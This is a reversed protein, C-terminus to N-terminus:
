EWRLATMPDIRAARRAPVLSAAATTVLIAASVLALTLPDMPMVGYLADALLRSVGWAAALGVAIGCAAFVAGQGIVQRLVLRRTAGLAMRVGIERTRRAVLYSVVAYLGFMALLLGIAGLVAVLIASMREVFLALQMHEDITTVQMTPVARDLAQVEHRVQAVMRHPDTAVRVVFTMEAAPQQRLPVYFYPQVTETLSNTKTDQVVGVIERDVAPRAGVTVHRGIPDEDAWFKRAMAASVLMVAPASANDARTFDRGRLIRTGITNFYNPGVANFRVMPLQSGPRVERGPISVAMAAGGGFPSLPLRRAVGVQQVGPIAALRESLRDCFDYAQTDGYGGIMPIVTAIVMPRAEFGPNIRQSNIYSRVLGGAAILLLSSLAIQGVVLVDRPGVRLWSGRKENAGARILASVGFRSAVFAPLLGFVPVTVLTLLLAVALVRRDIRFEFGLPIGVNPILGPLLSLLWYTLLVAAIGSAASLLLSETLLQRVLRGRSAGLAVRMAIERRRAEARGLLLGAVNACAILLVFGVIAMLILRLPGFRRARIATDFDATLTAKENTAPHEHALEKGIRAMDSKAQGRTVGPRPRAIVGVHRAGRDEMAARSAPMLTSWAATTIWVPPALQSELGNFTDPLVGVVTAPTRNLILTKGIVAGDRGFWREWFGHSIVAVVQGGPGGDDTPQLARGVIPRVGLLSFYNGSVVSLSVLEAPEGERSVGVGRKCYAAVGSFVRNRARLDALDPYSLDDEQSDEDSTSVRMLSARDDIALPRLGLADVVSFIVANGAVGLALSFIAVAAATPTRALMRFGYRVDQM